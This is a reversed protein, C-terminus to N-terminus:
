EVKLLEGQLDVNEELKKNNNNNITVVPVLRDDNPHRHDDNEVSVEATISCKDNVLFGKHPDHFESLTIFSAFGIADHVGSGFKYEGEGKKLEPVTDPQKVKVKSDNNKEEKKEHSEESPKFCMALGKFSFIGHKEKEAEM